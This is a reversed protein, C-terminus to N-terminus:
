FYNKMKYNQKQKKYKHMLVGVYKGFMEAFITFFDIVQITTQYEILDPKYM